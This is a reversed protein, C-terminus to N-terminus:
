LERTTCGLKAVADWFLPHEQGVAFKVTVRRSRDNCTYWVHLQDLLRRVEHYAEESLSEIITM